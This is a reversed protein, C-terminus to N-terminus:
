GEKKLAEVAQAVVLPLNHAQNVLIELMATEEASFEVEKEATRIKRSLEVRRSCENLDKPDMRVPSELAMAYVEALTLLVVGDKQSSKPSAFKNGELDELVKTVDVM